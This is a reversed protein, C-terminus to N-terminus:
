NISFYIKVTVQYGSVPNPKVRDLSKIQMYWILYENRLIQFVHMYYHHYKAGESLVYEGNNLQNFYVNQPLHTHRVM